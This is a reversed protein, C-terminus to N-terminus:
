EEEEDEDEEDDELEDELEEIADLISSLIDDKHKNSKYLKPAVQRIADRMQTYVIIQALIEESIGLTRGMQMVKEPSVYRNSILKMFEKSLQDFNIRDPMMLENQTFQSQLLRMRTAFFRYVGLIAQLTRTDEVLRNLEPKSISPGKSKLDAGLSHLLFDIVTKMKPFVFQETLQDFLMQPTRPNGTIDRYMDRLATPSGLGEKSFSRAENAINKGAVVERGFDENLNDKAQQVKSALDGTTTQLLFDLADDALSYDSYFNLVKELIEEPTDSDSIMSRLLLLSRQNLEPNKDNFENALNDLMEPAIILDEDDADGAKEKQLVRKRNKQEELTRFKQRIVVPNFGSEAWEQFNLKSSVQRMTRQQVKSKQAAMQARLSQISAPGRAPIESM